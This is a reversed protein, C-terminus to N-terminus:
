AIRAYVQGLHHIASQLRRLNGTPWSLSRLLVRPNYAIGGSNDSRYRRDLAGLDLQHDILYDLAYELSGSM